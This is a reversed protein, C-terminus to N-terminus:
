GGVIAAEALEIQLDSVSSETIEVERTSFGIMTFVLTLPPEQRVNLSFTGDTSTSTDIVKGKVSVNVGGLPTGNEADVM